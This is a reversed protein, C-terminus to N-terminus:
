LVFSMISFRHFHPPFSSPFLSVKEEGKAVRLDWHPTFLLHCKGFFYSEKKKMNIWWVNKIGNIACKRVRWCLLPNLLLKRHKKLNLRRRVDRLIVAVLAQFVHCGQDVCHSIPSFLFLFISKRPILIWTYNYPPPCRARTRPKRPGPPCCAPPRPAWPAESAPSCWYGEAFLPAM